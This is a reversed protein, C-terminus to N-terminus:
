ILGNYREVLGNGAPNYPTTRNTAVGRTYLLSTLEQSLFAVGRDSHIYAPMGFISFLYSLCKIVTTSCPISFPFRSFEDVITLIYNNISNSPILVMLCVM